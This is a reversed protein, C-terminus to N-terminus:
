QTKFGLGCDSLDLTLTPTTDLRNSNYGSRVENVLGKGGRDFLTAYYSWFSDGFVRTGLPPSRDLQGPETM